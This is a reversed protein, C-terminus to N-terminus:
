LILQHYKSKLTDCFFIDIISMGFKGIDATLLSLVYGSQMLKCTKSRYYDVFISTTKSTGNNTTYM